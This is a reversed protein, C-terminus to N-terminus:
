GFQPYGFTEAGGWLRHYGSAGPINRRHDLNRSESDEYTLKDLRVMPFIAGEAQVQAFILTGLQAGSVGGIFGPYNQVSEINVVNGGPTDGLVLVELGLRQGYLAATLGAPGTGIVLLDYHVAM